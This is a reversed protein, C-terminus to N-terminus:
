LSVNVKETLEGAAREVEVRDVTKAHEIAADRLRKARGLIIEDAFNKRREELPVRHEPLIETLLIVHYGFSTKVVGSQKGVAAIRYVAAVYSADFKGIQTGPPPPKELDVAEGSEVVPPLDEIRVEIAPDKVSEALARFSAADTATAAAAAIRGALAQKRADDSKGGTLVVAHSTRRLEPRDVEWWRRATEAAVEADTPPGAAQAETWQAELLIRARAHREAALVRVPHVRRRGEAALLADSLARDLAARAPLSQAAAVREVTNTAIADPGVAAVHGPPIDIPAEASERTGCAPSLLLLASLCGPAARPNM